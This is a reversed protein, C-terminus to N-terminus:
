GDPGIAIEELDHGATGISLDGIVLDHFDAVAQAEERCGGLDIRACFAKSPLM